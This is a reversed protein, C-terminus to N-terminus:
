LNLYCNGSTYEDISLEDYTEVNFFEIVTKSNAELDKYKKSNARAKKRSEDDTLITYEDGIM